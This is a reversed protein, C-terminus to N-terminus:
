KNKIIEWNKLFKSEMIAHTRGGLRNHVDLFIRDEKYNETDIDVIQWIVKSGKRRVIDNIKPNIKKKKM